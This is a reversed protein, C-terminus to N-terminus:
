NPFPQVVEALRNTSFVDALEDRLRETEGLVANWYTMRSANRGRYREFDSRDTIQRHPLREIFAASPAIVLVRSLHDPSPKRWKLNKDFWGPTITESFHPFLVLGEKLQFPIDFHYDILGGDRYVGIPAGPIDRIGSMVLPISGSANLAEWVNKRNLAVRELPFNPDQYFPGVERPDHFLVRKFLHSLRRRSLLNVAGAALLAPLLLGRRDSALPGRCLATVVNLRYLPHELIALRDREDLCEVLIRTATATIEQATPLDDYSQSLYSELFAQHAKVPDPACYMAHRWAGISSGLLHLVSTRQPLWSGFLFRDMEALMLWKPGGAAGLVVRVDDPKLGHARIHAMAEKGARFVLQNAM